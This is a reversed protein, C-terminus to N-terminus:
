KEAFHVMIYHAVASLAKDGMEMNYAGRNDSEEGNTSLLFEEEEAVTVYLEYDKYKKNPM